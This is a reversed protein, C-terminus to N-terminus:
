PLHATFIGIMAKNTAPIKAASKSAAMWGTGMWGAFPYVVYWVM